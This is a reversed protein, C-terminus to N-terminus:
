QLNSVAVDTILGQSVYPGMENDTGMDDTGADNANLAFGDDGSRIKAGDITLYRIPGNFHLGDQLAGASWPQGEETPIGSDTVINRM